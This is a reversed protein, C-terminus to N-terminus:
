VMGRSTRGGRFGGDVGTVVLGGGRGWDRVWVAEEFGETELLLDMFPDSVIPGRRVVRRAVVLGRSVEM